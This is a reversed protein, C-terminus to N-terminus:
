PQSVTRKKAGREEWEAPEPFRKDLWGTFLQRVQAVSSQVDDNVCVIAPRRRLNDKHYDVSALKQKASSLSDLQVFTAPTDGLVFRYRRLARAVWERVSLESATMSKISFDVSEWESTLPLRPVPDNDAKEFFSKPRAPFKRRSDPLFADLGAQGCKNVVASIICDGCKPERFAVQKFIESATMPIGKPLHFCDQSLNCTMGAQPRTDPQPKRFKPFRHPASPELGTYPYGDFSSFSYITLPSIDASEWAQKIRNLTDRPQRLVDIAQDEFNGGLDRWIRRHHEHTWTGDDSGIAGVIYSWLLMERWREVVYHSMLFAIHVDPDESTRSRFPHSATRSLDEEWIKSIEHLFPMGLTKALHALYPRSRKGFRGDLLQNSRKLAIWEGGAVGDGGVLLDSQMRFVPGHEKTYFDHTSLNGNFFVDDNMYVFYDSVGEVQNLRSEIALSNFVSHNHLANFISHHHVVSLTLNGDKWAQPLPEEQGVLWQPLQGLRWGSSGDCGPYPFDSTVVFLKGAADRFNQLVSRVSYRLEDYERFSGAKPPRRYGRHGKSVVEENNQLYAAKHLPDSGNVYAWVIDLTRTREDDDPAKCPVGLAIYDDLCDAPIDPMEADSSSGQSTPWRGPLRWSSSTQLFPLYYQNFKVDESFRFLEGLRLSSPLQEVCADHAAEIALALRQVHYPFVIGFVYLVGAICSFAFAKRVSLRSSSSSKHRFSNLLSSLSSPPPSPHRTTLGIDSAKEEDDGPPIPRYPYM